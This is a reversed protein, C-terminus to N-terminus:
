KKFRKILKIDEDKKEQLEQLAVNYETLARKDYELYEGYINGDFAKFIYWDKNYICYRFGFQLSKFDNQEEITSNAYRVANINNLAQEREEDTAGMFNCYKIIPRPDMYSVNPDGKKINEYQFGIVKYIVDLSKHYEDTNKYIEDDKEYITPTIYEDPFRTVKPKLYSNRGICVLDIPEDSQKSINVIEEICQFFADIISDRVNGFDKNIFEISNVILVNGNRKTPCFAALNNSSDYILLIRGNRCLAAHLLHKHGIGLPRFCCGAKYGLEFLRYDDFKMTQYKYGKQISGEVYPISSENRKKMEKYTEVVSNLVEDNERGINGLIINELFDNNNLVYCDPTIIKRDIDYIETELISIVKKITIEGHCKELIYDYNNYLYYWRKYLESDKNNLMNIFHNDKSTAFMFNIFRNDISPIYKNGEKKMQVRSVDTKLVNDLFVKEYEGYKKNIIELSREYGFILYLKICLAYKEAIEDRDETDLIKFLNNIHKVNIKSIQDYTIGSLYIDNYLAVNFKIYFMLRFDKSINDYNYTLTSIDNYNLLRYNLNRKLTNYLIEEDITSDKKIKSLLYNIFKEKIEEDEIDNLLVHYVKTRLDHIYKYISKNHCIRIKERILKEKRDVDDMFEEFSKGKSKINDIIYNKLLPNNNKDGKIFELLFLEQENFQSIIEENITNIDTSLIVREINKYRQRFDNPLLISNSYTNLKEIVKLQTDNPLSKFQESYVMGDFVKSVDFSYFFRNEIKSVSLVIKIFYENNYIQKKISPSKLIKYLNELNRILSEDYIINNIDKKGFILVKKITDNEWLKNQLLSNSNRFISIIKDVNLTSIFDIISSDIVIRIEEDTMNRIISSIKKNKYIKNDKFNIGIIGTEM